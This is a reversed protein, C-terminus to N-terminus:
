GCCARAWAPLGCWLPTASDLPADLTFTARHWRIPAGRMGQGKGWQEPSGAEASPSPSTGADREGHLMGQFRWRAVDIQYCGGDPTITVPGYIGKKEHEQGKGIQWDGKILGLGDALVCLTNPGERLNINFTATWDGRRDEPPVPSSGIREGNVWLTLRDSCAAFHITASTAEDNTVTARYWGYPNSGNGLAIM